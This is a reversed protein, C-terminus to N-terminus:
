RRRYLLLGALGPLMLLLAPGPEPIVTLTVNVGRGVTDGPNQAAYDAGGIFLTYDGAPVNFFTKVIHGDVVGDGVIGPTAGFNASTGDVGYGMFTFSSLDAETQGVDNGVKWDGLARFNGEKQVGPQANRWAESLLNEDHDLMAPPLHALGRYFSFGPLLDGLVAGGSTTASIDVTIRADYTLTFRYARVYESPGYDADTGDAWAWNGAIVKDLITVPAEGGSFSGFNRGTYSIHASATLCALLSFALAATRATLTPNM